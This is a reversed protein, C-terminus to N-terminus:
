EADSKFTRLEEQAGIITLFASDHRAEVAHLIEPALAVAAGKELFLRETTKELAVTIAGSLVLLVTPGESMHQECARGARVVTLVLTLGEGRVLTLGARGHETYAKDAILQQALALLAFSEATTADLEVPKFPREISTRM